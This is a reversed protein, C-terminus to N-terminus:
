WSHDGVIVRAPSRPAMPMHAPSMPLLGGTALVKKWAGSAAHGAYTSLGLELVQADVFLGSFQIDGHALVATVFPGFRLTPAWGRRRRLWIEAEESWHTVYRKRNPAEIRHMDGLALFALKFTSFYEIENEERSGRWVLGASEGLQPYKTCVIERLSGLEADSPMVFTSAAIPHSIKVVPEVPPAPLVKRGGRAKIEALEARMAANEAEIKAFRRETVDDAM